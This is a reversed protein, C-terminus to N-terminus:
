PSRLNVNRNSQGYHPRSGTVGRSHAGYRGGARRPRCGETRTAPGRLDSAVDGDAFDSSLRREPHARGLSASKELPSGWATQRGDRALTTSGIRGVHAMRTLCHTGAFCTRLPEPVELEAPEGSARGCPVRRVVGIFCPDCAALSVATVVSPRPRIAFPCSTGHHASAVTSSNKCTPWLTAALSRM